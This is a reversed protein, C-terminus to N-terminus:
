ESVFQIDDTRPHVFEFELTRALGEDLTFPAKFRTGATRNFGHSYLYSVAEMNTGSSSGRLMNIVSKMCSSKGSGREGCFSVIQLNDEVDYKLFGEISSAAHRYQEAFISVSYDESEIITSNEHGVIYKIFAM